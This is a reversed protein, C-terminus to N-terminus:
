RDCRSAADDQQTARSLNSSEEGPHFGPIKLESYVLAGNHDQM